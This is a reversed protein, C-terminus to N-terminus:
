KIVLKWLAGKGLKGVNIIKGDRRLDSLLNTIDDRKLEPFIQVFEAMTGSSHRRLHMLIIEKNKDRTLGMRKTRLGLKGAHKYYESSLIFRMSNTRGYSELLGCEILHQVQSRAVPEGKRIKELLVYDRASLQINKKSTFNSLFKIFEEDQLSAPVKLNVSTDTTGSYDPSGKGEEITLRFIKDAGQGSREVGRFVKQLIESLFRNRPTSPVDIINESNVGYPFGGPSTIELQQPSQKIFISGQKLYDRHCVANFLAERFVQINYAPIDTRFLGEQIQHIQQRASIREWIEEAVFVFAKRYDIREVHQIDDAHNRYEFSIEAQRLSKDLAAEKGLLILAALRVKGDIMLELDTLFQQDSLTDINVAGDNKEKYLARLREIAEPSLDNFGVGSVTEFTKDSEFENIIAKHHEDSMVELSDGVRMLPVGAFRLVSGTPRPPIKFVIVRKGEVMIENAEVKQNTKDFIKKLFRESLRWNVGVIQGTKNVGAVLYGGRENGIAVCYGVLCRRNEFKDQGDFPPQDVWEKLEVKENEKNAILELLENELM